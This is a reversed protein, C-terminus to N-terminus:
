VALRNRSKSVAAHQLALVSPPPVSLIARPVPHRCKADGREFSIEDCDRCRLYYLTRKPIRNLQRSTDWYIYRRSWTNITISTKEFNRCKHKQFRLCTGRDRCLKLRNRFVVSVRIGAASPYPFPIRPLIRPPSQSENTRGKSQCPALVTPEAARVVPRFMSVSM